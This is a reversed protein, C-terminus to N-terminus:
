TRASTAADDSWAARLVVSDAASFSRTCLLIRPAVVWRLDAIGKSWTPLGFESEAFYVPNLWDSSQSLGHLVEVKANWFSCRCTQHVARRGYGIAPKADPQ